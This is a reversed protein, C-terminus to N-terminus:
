DARGMLGLLEHVVHSTAITTLEAHDYARAGEVRSLNWGCCM